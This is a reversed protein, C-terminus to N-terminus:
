KADKTQIFEILWIHSARSQESLLSGFAAKGVCRAIALVRMPAAM